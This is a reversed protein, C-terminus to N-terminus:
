CPYETTEAGKKAFNKDKGWQGAMVGKRFNITHTPTCWKQVRLKNWQDRYGDKHWDWLPRMVTLKYYIKSHCPIVQVKSKKPVTKAIRCGKNKWIFKLILKDTKVFFPQPPKSQFHMSQIVKFLISMKGMYLTEIWLNGHVCM